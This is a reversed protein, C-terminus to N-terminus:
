SQFKNSLKLINEGILSLEKRFNEVDIRINKNKIINVQGLEYLSPFLPGNLSNRIRLLYVYTETDIIDRYELIERTSKLIKNKFEFEMFKFYEMDEEVHQLGNVRLLRISNLCFDENVYKDINDIVDELKPRMLQMVDFDPTKSPNDLKPSCKCVLYLYRNIMDSIYSNIENYLEQKLLQEKEILLREENRKNSIILEKVDSIADDLNEFNQHQQKIIEYLQITTKAQQVYKEVVFESIRKSNDNDSVFCQKVVDAINKVIESKELAVSIKDDDISYISNWDLVFTVDAYETKFMDNDAIKQMCRGLIKQNRNQSILNEIESKSKGVIVDLIEDVIKDFVIDKVKDM